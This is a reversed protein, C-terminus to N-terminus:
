RLHHRFAMSQSDLLLAPASLAARGAPDDVHDRVFSFISDRMPSLRIFSRAPTPWPTPPTPRRRKPAVLQCAVRFGENSPGDQDDACLKNLDAVNIRGAFRLGDGLACFFELLRFLLQHRHLPALAIGFPMTQTLCSRM